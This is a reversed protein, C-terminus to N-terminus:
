GGATTTSIRPPAIIWQYMQKAPLLYSRSSRFNTVESRFRDAVELVQRRTTGTLQMRLPQGKGTVLIVELPDNDRTTRNTKATLNASNFDNSDGPPAFFVYVLAPTVRTTETIRNLKTQTEPLNYEPNTRLNLITLLENTSASAVPVQPNIGLYKQFDNQFYNELAGLRASLDENTLNTILPLVESSTILIPLSNQSNVTAGGLVGRLSNYLELPIIPSPNFSLIPTDKPTPSVEPNPFLSPIPPPVRDELPPVVGVSLPIPPLFFPPTQVVPSSQLSSEPSELFESSESSEPPTGVIVPAPTRPPAPNTLLSFVSPTIADSATTRISINTGYNNIAPPVPVTLNNVTTSSGSGVTIAAATGNSTASGVVFPISTGGGHTINITSNGAGGQTSISAITSDRAGLSGTALFTTGATINVNGGFGSAGTASETFIYNVGISGNPSSLNVAGGNTNVLASSVLYGTSINGGARLDIAGANGAMFSTTSINTTSINGFANLGIAGANGNHSTSDLDSTSINGGSSLNIAGGNGAGGADSITYLGATSLNGTANLSIAGGNALSASYLIGTNINGNLANLIINGGDRGATINGTYIQGLDISQATINVDRGSASILNGNANFAGGATFSIGGCTGATCPAFTVPVNFTISNSAQIDVVTSPAIAALAGASITMSAPTVALGINPLSGDGDGVAAQITIDTPDLLLTGFLGHAGPLEVRGDFALSEKGSVEVFGGSGTVGRGTITGYFRTTDDAWVIVRGGNGSNIADVNLFSNSDVYTIRSNFPNNGRGQYEGGVRITGGGGIGSVNLNANVLAVRDGLINIARVGSGEGVPVPSALSLNGSTINIGQGTPVNIGAVQLTEGNTTINSLSSGTLLRPLDVGRLEGNIPPIIELSLLQGPQSIRVRNTGPVAALTINGGPANLNGTNIINGGILSIEQGSTVSLNGANVISGAPTTTFLFSDPNGTLASFNNDGFANFLNNGFGIQNATTATFSAPINLRANAGFIIGSPNMLFLHSNGGSVQLLGNIVSPNGGNVRALINQIQPNSLFTAIQSSNLNFDRFSHFLNAGAQTGGTINIQNGQPNAITGAGNPIIQALTPHIFAIAFGLGLSFQTLYQRPLM